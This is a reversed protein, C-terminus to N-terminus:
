LSAPFCYTATMDPLGDLNQIFSITPAGVTNRNASGQDTNDSGRYLNIIRKNLMENMCVSPKPMRRREVSEMGPTTGANKDFRINRM